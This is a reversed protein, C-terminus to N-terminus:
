NEVTLCSSCASRSLCLDGAVLRIYAEREARITGVIKELIEKSEGCEEMNVGCKLALTIFM